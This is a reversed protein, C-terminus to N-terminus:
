SIHLTGKFVKKITDQKTYEQLGDKSIFAWDKKDYGYQILYFDPDRRHQFKVVAHFPFTHVPIKGTTRHEIDTRLEKPVLKWREKKIYSSKSELNFFIRTYVLGPEIIKYVKASM